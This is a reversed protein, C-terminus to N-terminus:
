IHKERAGKYSAKVPGMKVGIDITDTKKDFKKKANNDDRILGLGRDTITADKLLETIREKDFSPIKSIFGWESLYRYVQLEKEYGKGPFFNVLAGKTSAVIGNLLVVAYNRTCPPEDAEEPVDWHGGKKEALPIMGEKCRERVWQTKREWKRAIESTTM